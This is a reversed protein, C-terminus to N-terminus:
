MDWETMRRALEVTEDYYRAMRQRQKAAALRKELAHHTHEETNRALERELNAVEDKCFAVSRSRASGFFM